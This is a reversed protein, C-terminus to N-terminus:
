NDNEEKDEIMKEIVTDTADAILDDLSMSRASPNKLLTELIDYADEWYDQDYHFGGFKGEKTFYLHTYANDDHFIHGFVLLNENLFTIQQESFSEKFEPRGGWHRVISLVLGAIKKAPYIRLSGWAQSYRLDFAGQTLYLERLDAPLKCQLQQELANLTEATEKEKESLANKDFSYEEEDFDLLVFADKFRKISERWTEGQKARRLKEIPKNQKFFLYADNNIFDKLEADTINVYYEQDAKKELLMLSAFFKDQYKEPSNKFARLYILAQPEYSIIFPDEYEGHGSKIKFCEEIHTIASELQNQEICDLALLTHAKRLNFRMIKFDESFLIEDNVAFKGVIEKSTELLGAHNSMNELNKLKCQYYFGWNSYYDDNGEIEVTTSDLM